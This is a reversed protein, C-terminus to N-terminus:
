VTYKKNSHRSHRNQQKKQQKAVPRQPPQNAGPFDEILAPEGILRITATLEKENNIQLQYDGPLLWSHGDDDIHNLVRYSLGFILTISSGPALLSVRAYDFLEKIPPTVGPITANSSVFALVVVDSAVSGTNTVNVTWEVDTIKDDLRANQILDEINYVSLLNNQEDRQEGITQYSFSSYTLGQGFPYVPKGTYFKYTRGPNEASPRMNQDTMPVQNVYNAPYWTVPLKGAPSFVGFIAQVLADGGSQSPYGHWFIANTRTSDRFEAVDTGGGGYLVVILPKGLAELQEILQTQAGPLSIDSRDNGEGEVENSIGGVYVIVESEKAAAIADPFGSTDNTRVDCGMAHNIKLGTNTFSVFPTNMFCAQGAYNGIQANVDNALPGVVAVINVKKLPLTGDNKLLVLSEQAARLSLATGRATSVHEIGYQRYPQDSAPDFYGM